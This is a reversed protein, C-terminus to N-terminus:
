QELQQLALVRIDHTRPCDVILEDAVARQWLEKFTSVDALRRQKSAPEARSYDLVGRSVTVRPSVRALQGIPM